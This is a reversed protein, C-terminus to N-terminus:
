PSYTYRGILRPIGNYLGFVDAYVRYRQGIVWTDMSRNELLVQRSTTCQKAEEAHKGM